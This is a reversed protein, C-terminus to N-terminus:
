NWGDGRNARFPFKRPSIRRLRYVVFRYVQKGSSSILRNVGSPPFPHDHQKESRASISASRPIPRATTETYNEELKSSRDLSIERPESYNFPM